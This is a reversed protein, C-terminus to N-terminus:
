HSSHNDFRYSISFQPTVGLVSHYTTSLDISLKDLNIGIGFCYLSPNTQFGTRLHLADLVRYEIGAQFQAAHDIEKKAEAALWIKKGPQYSAGLRFTTPVKEEVYGSNVRVPNFVHAATVLQDTIKILLGAEFTFTSANGYEAISTGLYDIQIGGSLKETFLRSYALGIKKENYADFGFYNASLGFAGSKTPLTVGGAYFSLEKLLFKRETYLALSIGQEFAMCAQNNFLSYPDSITSSANGLANSRAGISPPEFGGLSIDVICVIFYIALLHKKM